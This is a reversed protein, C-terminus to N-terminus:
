LPTLHHSVTQKDQSLRDEPSIHLFCFHFIIPFLINANKFRQNTHFFRLKNIDYNIYPPYFSIRYISNNRM